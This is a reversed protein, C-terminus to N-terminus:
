RQAVLDDDFEFDNDKDWVRVIIETGGLRFGFNLDQNLDRAGTCGPAVCPPWTPNLSNWVVSWERGFHTGQEALAAQVQM